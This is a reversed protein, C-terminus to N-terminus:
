RVHTKSWFDFFNFWNDPALRCYHELREAYRRVYDGLRRERDARPLELKEAFPECYLAYRNPPFHLGFTLYVPCGLTAALIFAGTPFRAAHGLFPVEVARSELARDALVAVLEGREVADRVTLALAAPSGGADIFRTNESSGLRTLVDNVRRANRFNAVVNIPIDHSMGSARLAEFSGLHAGFLFAGRRERALRELHEHGVHTFEFRDFQGRLFFLRDLACEAFRLLHRYVAGPTTPQGVRSLYQRSAARARSNALFYYLVIGRLLLRAPLRGLATAVKVLTVMGWTAGVERVDLWRRESM